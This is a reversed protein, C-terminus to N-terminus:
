INLTKKCTYSEYHILLLPKPAKIREESQNSVFCMITLRAFENTYRILSFDIYCTFTTFFSMFSM